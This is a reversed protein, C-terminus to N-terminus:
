RCHPSRLGVVSHGYIMPIMAMTDRIRSAKLGMAGPSASPAGAEVATMAKATCEVVCKVAASEMSASKMATAQTASAATM